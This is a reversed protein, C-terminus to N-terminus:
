NICNYMHQQTIFSRYIIISLVGGGWGNAELLIFITHQWRLMPNEFSDVPFHKSYATFKVYAYLMYLSNGVNFTIIFDFRKLLFINKVSINLSLFWFFNILLWIFNRKM